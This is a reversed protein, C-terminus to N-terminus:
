YSYNAIFPERWDKYWGVLRNADRTIVFSDKAMLLEGCPGKIVPSVVIVMGPALETSDGARLYPPECPSVGVGHGLALGPVLETEQQEAAQMVAAHVERAQVGPKLRARAAERLAVLSDYAAKQAVDPEGLVLMRAAPSWYGDCTANLEMRMLEGPRAKRESGVGYRPALPWFSAAHPGSAAQAIAHHGVLDLEREIAHIRIGESEGMESGVSTVLIHHAAGNLAHDARSAVKELCKVEEAFKIIRLTELWDDCPVLEFGELAQALREFLASPMRRTDVGIASNGPITSVALEAIAEVLSQDRVCEELVLTERIWSLNRFSTEWLAPLLCTPAANEPWFLAM